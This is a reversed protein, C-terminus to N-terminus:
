TKKSSMGPDYFTAKTELMVIHGNLYIQKINRHMPLNNSIKNDHAGNM